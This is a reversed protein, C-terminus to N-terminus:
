LAVLYKATERFFFSIQMEAILSFALMAGFAVCTVVACIIRKRASYSLKKNM